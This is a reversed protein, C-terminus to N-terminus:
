WAGGGFASEGACPGLLAKYFGLRLEHRADGMASALQLSRRRKRCCCSGAKVHQV